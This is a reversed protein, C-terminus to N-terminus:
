SAAPAGGRRSQIVQQIAEMVGDMKQMRKIEWTTLTILRMPSTATVTSNRMENELVGMEGFFDGPGLDALHRGAQEVKATGEEIAMLEYSFDGERVLTDGTSVSTEGAFTAIVELDKDSLNQFITINKLRNKDM